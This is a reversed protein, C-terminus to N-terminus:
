VCQWTFSSAEFRRAALDEPRILWYLTGVDGWIMDAEEDSDFQAFLTWRRAEEELAPDDSPVKGAFHTYAVEIEVSDQVPFAHGGIWHAPRPMCESLEERFPDGNMPDGMFAQDEASLGRVAARLAPHDLVPGTTMLQAALPVQYYPEVDAPADRESTGVGPPVYIVRTGALTEPEGRTVVFNPDEPGFLGDDPDLYFFLLTGSDPLALDLRDVPLRDCDLSAVFNLSGRDEWVPWPVDEPLDPLGGLRGVPEMDDLQGLLRVAPRMLAIWQDAVAPPLHRRAVAAL